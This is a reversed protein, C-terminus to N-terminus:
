PKADCSSSGRCNWYSACAPDSNCADVPEFCAGLSSSLSVSECQGCADNENPRVSPTACLSSTCVRGCQDPRCVCAIAYQRYRDGGGNTSCNCCQECAVASVVSACQAELQGADACSEGGGADAGAVTSGGCGVLIVVAAAPSVISWVVSM